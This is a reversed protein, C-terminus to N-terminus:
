ERPAEDLAARTEDLQIVCVPVAMAARFFIELAIEFFAAALHILGLGGVHLVQFRAPEELIRQHNPASFEAARGHAFIADGGAAVMVDVGERHPEGAAARLGTRHDALGVFEAEVGDRVTRVHMVDVRGHEVEEAHIVRLEREAELAAIEPQSVHM